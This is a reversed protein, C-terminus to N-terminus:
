ACAYLCSQSQSRQNLEPVALFLHRSHLWRGCRIRPCIRCGEVAVTLGWARLSQQCWMKLCRLQEEAWNVVPRRRWQPLLLLGWLNMRPFSPIKLSTQNTDSVNKSNEVTQKNKKRHNPSKKKSGGGSGLYARCTFGSPSCCDAASARFSCHLCWRLCYNSSIIDIIDLQRFLPQPPRQEAQKFCMKIRITFTSIIWLAMLQQLPFVPPSLDILPHLPKELPGFWRAQSRKMKGSSLNLCRSSCLSRFQVSATECLAELDRNLLVVSYPRSRPRWTELVAVPETFSYMESRYMHLCPSLWHLIIFFHPRFCTASPSLIKLLKDEWM